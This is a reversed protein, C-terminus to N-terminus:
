AFSALGASSGPFARLPDRRSSVASVSSPSAAAEGIASSGASEPDSSVSASFEPGPWEPELLEPLPDPDESEPDPEPCVCGTSDPDSFLGEFEPLFRFYPL